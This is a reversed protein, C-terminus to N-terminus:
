VLIVMSERSFREFCKFCKWVQMYEFVFLLKKKNAFAYKLSVIFPHELKSSIHLEDLAYNVGQNTEQVKDLMKMAYIM